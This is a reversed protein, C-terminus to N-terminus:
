QCAGFDSLLALLDEVDVTCDGAINCPGGFDGFSGLMALLDETDVFGDDNACDAPCPDVVEVPLVTMATISMGLGSSGVLGLETAAGTMLDIGYLTSEGLLGGLLSETSIAYAQDIMGSIVNFQGSVDFGGVVSFDVGLPGITGPLDLPDASRDESRGSREAPVVVPRRRRIKGGEIPPTTGASQREAGAVV